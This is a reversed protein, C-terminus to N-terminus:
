GLLLGDQLDTAPSLVFLRRCECSFAQLNFRTLQDSSIPRDDCGVPHRLILPHEDSVGLQNTLYLCTLSDADMTRTGTLIKSSLLLTSITM